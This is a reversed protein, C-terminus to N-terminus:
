AYVEAYQADFCAITPMVRASAISRARVLTVILASHGPQTSVWIASSATVRIAAFVPRLSSSARVVSADILGAGSMSGGGLEEPVLLSAWGLEAGRRWTDRDFSRGEAQLAAFDPGWFPVDSM